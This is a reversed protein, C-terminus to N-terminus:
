VSPSFRFGRAPAGCRPMVCRRAARGSPDHRDVFRGASDDAARHRFDQNRGKVIRVTM